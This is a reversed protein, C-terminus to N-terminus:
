DRERDLRRTVSDDFDPDKKIRMTEHFYRSGAGLFENLFIVVKGIVQFSGYLLLFLWVHSAWDM